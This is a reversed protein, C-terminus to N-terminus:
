MRNKLFCKAYTEMMEEMCAKFFAPICISSGRILRSIVTLSSWRLAASASRACRLPLIWSIWLRWSLLTTIAATGSASIITRWQQLAYSSKLDSKRKCILLNPISTKLQIKTTPPRFCSIWPNHPNPAQKMVTSAFQSTNQVHNLKNFHHIKLKWYFSAKCLTTLFIFFCLVFCFTSKQTCQVKLITINFFNSSHQLISWITGKEGPM